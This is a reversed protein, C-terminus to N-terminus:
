VSVCVCKRVAACRRVRLYLHLPLLYLHLGTERQAKVTFRLWSLKRRVNQKTSVFILVHFLIFKFPVCLSSICVIACISYRSGNVTSTATKNKASSKKQPQKSELTKRENSATAWRNRARRESAPGAVAVGAAVGAAVCSAATDTDTRIECIDPRWAASYRHSRVYPTDTLVM